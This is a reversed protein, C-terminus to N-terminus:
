GNKKRRFKIFLFVGAGIAAAGLVSGTVILAIKVKPDSGNEGDSSRAITELRVTMNGDVREVLLTGNEENYEGYSVGTVEVGEPVNLTIVASEGRKIGTTTGIVAGTSDIVQVTYTKQEFASERSTLVVVIPGTVNYVTLTGNEEDYSAGECTEFSYGQEFTVNFVADTGNNVFLYHGSEGFIIHDDGRVSVLWQPAEGEPLVYLTLKLDEYIGEINLIGTESDYTGVANMNEDYAYHFVFGSAPSIRIEAMGGPDTSLVEATCNEAPVVEVKFIPVIEVSALSWDWWEGTNSPLTIKIFRASEDKVLVTYSINSYYDGALQAVVKEIYSGDAATYNQNDKSFEFVADSGIHANSVNVTIRVAGTNEPLFYVIYEGQGAAVTLDRMPVDADYRQFTVGSSGTFIKEADTLDDLHTNETPFVPVKFILEVETEALKEPVLMTFMGTDVDFSGMSASVFYAGADPTVAVTFTEGAEATYTMGDPLSYGSGTFTVTVPPNEGEAIIMLTLSLDETVNYITLQKTEANYSYEGLELEQILYFEYGDDLQLTFVADEGYAVTNQGDAVFNEGPTIQVTQYGRAVIQTSLKFKNFSDNEPTATFEVRIFEYGDMLVTFDVTYYNDSNIASLGLLSIIEDKGFLVPVYTINDASVKITPLCNNNFWYGKFMFRLTVASVDQDFQYVVYGANWDNTTIQGGDNNGWVVNPSKDFVDDIADETGLSLTGVGNVNSKKVIFVINLDDEVGTITITKAAPDYVGFSIGAFVYGNDITVNEFVVTGGIENPTLTYESATFHSDESHELTVTVEGPIEEVYLIIEAGGAPLDKTNLTLVIEGTRGDATGYNSYETETLRWGDAIKITIKIEEGYGLGDLSGPETTMVEYYESEAVSVTYPEFCEARLVSVDWWNGGGAPFGIKILCNEPLAEGSVYYQQDFYNDSGNPGSAAASFQLYEESIPVFTKGGDTSVSLVFREGEADKGVRTWVSFGSVEGVAYVLYRSTGGGGVSVATLDAGENVDWTNYTYAAMNDSMDYLMDTNTLDDAGDFVKEEHISLVEIEVDETVNAVSLTGGGEITGHSSGFLIYGEEASLTFTATEGTAVTVEYKDATFHSNEDHKLTVTVEGPIAEVNLIIEAGGAPLDKTNLTLIIEGERGDATGYNSYETETLRWGEAIDITIKVEEGYGLGELSAPETATVEYHESEAVSVNYYGYAEVSLVSFDYWNGGVEPFRIQILSNEPIAEGSVQYVQEYYNTPSEAPGKETTSYQIDEKAIPTYTKGGDSSVSLSVQGTMNDGSNYVLTRVIFHSAEEVAYTMYRSSGGGNMSFATLDAGSAVNWWEIEYNQMGEAFDYIKSSDALDDKGTFIKAEPVALVEATINETVGSITLTDGEITGYSSGFLVYGEEASLTFTATEGAAVTVSSESVVTFGEGESISVTYTGEAPPEAQVAGEAFGILCPFATFGLIMCLIALVARKKM